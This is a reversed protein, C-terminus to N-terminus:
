REYHVSISSTQDNIYDGVYNVSTYHPWAVHKGSYYPDSWFNVYNCFATGQQWSSIKDDMSTAWPNNRHLNPIAYGASDCPGDAGLWNVATGGYDADEFLTLLIVQDQVGLAQAMGARSSSCAEKLVKSSTEGPQVKALLVGCQRTTVHAPAANATTGTLLATVALALSAALRRKRM